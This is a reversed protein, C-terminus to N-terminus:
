SARSSMSPLAFFSRSRAAQDVAIGAVCDIFTRGTADTLRAGSGEVFTVPWRKYTPIIHDPAVSVARTVPDVRSDLTLIEGTFARGPFAASCATLRQGTRVAAIFTEPVDFDLLVTSVDDLTTIVTGPTVLTGVSVRRLGVNGSFPARILHDQLRAEAAALAAEDARM